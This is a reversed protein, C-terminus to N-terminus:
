AIDAAGYLTKAITRAKELLPMDDPYLYKFQAAKSEVLKVVARALAETGKSGEAWHSCLIAEVGIERCMKAILEHEAATDSNFRNIAVVAPVGFRGINEVHRKLNAFGADLAA